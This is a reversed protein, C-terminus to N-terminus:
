KWRAFSMEMNELLGESM